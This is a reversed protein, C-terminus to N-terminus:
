MNWDVFRYHRIYYKGDNYLINLFIDLTGPWEKSISGTCMFEYNEDFTVYHNKEKTKKRLLVRSSGMKNLLM